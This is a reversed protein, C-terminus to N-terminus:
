LDEVISRVWGLGDADEHHDKWDAMLRALRAETVKALVEVTLEQDGYGQLTSRAPMDLVLSNFSFPSNPIVDRIPARLVCLESTDAIWFV